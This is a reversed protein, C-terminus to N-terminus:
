TGDSVILGSGGWSTGEYRFRGGLAEYASLTKTERSDYLPAHATGQETMEILVTEADEYHKAVRDLLKLADDPQQQSFGAVTSLGFVWLGLIRWVMRKVVRM